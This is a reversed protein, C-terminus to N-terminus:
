HDTGIDEFTELPKTENTIGAFFLLLKAACRKHAPSKKSMRIIKRRTAADVLSFALLLDEAMELHEAPSGEKVLDQPRIISM